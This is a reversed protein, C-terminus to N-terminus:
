FSVHASNLTFHRRLTALSPPRMGIQAACGFDILTWDLGVNLRLINSPKVNGHAWGTAHLKELARACNILVQM